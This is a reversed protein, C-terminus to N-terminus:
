CVRHLGLMGTPLSTFRPAAPPRELAAYDRKLALCCSPCPILLSSSQLPIYLLSGGLAFFMKVHLQFGLLSGLCSEGMSSVGHGEAGACVPWAGPDVPKVFEVPDRPVLM